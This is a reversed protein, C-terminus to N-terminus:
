VQTLIWTIADFLDDAIYVPSVGKKPIVYELEGLGYGTKVLIGPIGINRALGLDVSSDGVVFSKNLDIDFDRCAKNILGPSPKRCECKISYGPVNGAPHHPCYYIADLAAGNANLQEVMFQNVERVLEEPYYGRAVGSQNSVVIAYLGKKNILKIADSVRPLLKFRSIHNIYGMQENITGDRDIFIAPKMGKGWIMQYTQVGHAFLRISFMSSVFWFDSCFAM